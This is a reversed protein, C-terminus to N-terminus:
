NSVPIKLGMTGLLASALIRIGQKGAVRLGKRGYKEIKKWSFFKSIKKRARSLISINDLALNSEIEVKKDASDKAEVVLLDMENSETPLVQAPKAEAKSHKKTKKHKQRQSRVM